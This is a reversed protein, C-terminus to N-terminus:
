RASGYAVRGDPGPCSLSEENRGDDTPDDLPLPVARPDGPAAPPPPPAQWPGYVNGTTWDHTPGAQQQRSAQDAATIVGHFFNHTLRSFNVLPAEFSPSICTSHAYVQNCHAWVADYRADPPTGSATLVGLIRGEYPDIFTNDALWAYQLAYEPQMRVLHYRTGELHNRFFVLHDGGRMGWGEPYGNAARSRQGTLFSSGAMVFSKMGHCLGGWSVSHGRVNVVAVREGGWAFQLLGSGGQGDDGNLDVGDLIIDKTDASAYVLAGVRGGSHKMPTSGRIRVRLTQSPPTYRGVLLQRVHKNPPIVLDIDVIDGMLVATDDISTGITIESGKVLAAESLERATHVTV